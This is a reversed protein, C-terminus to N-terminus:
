PGSRRHSAALTESPSCGYLKRYDAAFRGLNVFGWHCAVAAVTTEEPTAVKLGAHARRIRTQRLYALPTTGEHRQFAVQLGRPSLRAAAAIDRLGIDDAAHQEIYAIARRVTSPAGGGIPGAPAAQIEGPYADLLVAATLRVIQARALPSLTNLPASMQNRVFETTAAWARGVSGSAPPGLRFRVNVDQEFGAAEAAARELASRALVMHLVRCRNRWELRYSGHADMVLADSTTSVVGEDRSEVVFQGALPRSILVFDSFPDPEVIVDTSGYTVDYLRLEPLGGGTNRARFGGANDVMRLRHPCYVASLRAVAEEPDTTDVQVQSHIRM